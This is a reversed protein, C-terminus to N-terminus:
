LDSQEEEEEEEEEKLEESHMWGGNRGEKSLDIAEGRWKRWEEGDGGCRLQM